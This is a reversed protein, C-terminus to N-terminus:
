YGNLQPSRFRWGPSFHRSTVKLAMIVEELAVNGAREGSGNITGEVERAGHEIAALTNAVGLGLDNYGYVVEALSRLAFFLERDRRLLSSLWAGATGGKKPV